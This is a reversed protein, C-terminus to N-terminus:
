RRDRHLRGAPQGDAGAQGGEEPFGERAQEWKQKLMEFTNVYTVDQFRNGFKEVIHDILAKINEKRIFDVLELVASNLLNYRDGNEFFVNM